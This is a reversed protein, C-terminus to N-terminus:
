VEESEYARLSDSLVRKALREQLRSSAVENWTPAVGSPRYCMCADLDSYCELCMFCGKCYDYQAEADSLQDLCVNCIAQDRWYQELAEDDSSKSRTYEKWDDEWAMSWRPRYFSKEYSSNSWWVGDKWHGLHENLIYINAELKPDLSFVAVKSGSMWESLYARWEPDDLVELGLSPLYEEAFIRTDSRKDGKPVDIPLIGNHALVTMEDGGVRFPHCNGKTSAGHTTYRAHFMAWTDPMGSRIRLFRDVMEEADMGRGTIIKDDTLFAYGYGHPNSEASNMLQEKTPTSNPELVCLLCM